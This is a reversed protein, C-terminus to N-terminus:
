DAGDAQAFIITYSGVAAGLDKGKEIDSRFHIGGYLRSIAAEEKYANFTSAGEPFLYSLVEAAASSFTSHGSVYAPFNPMGTLTKVDSDIQSPRPNYWYYKVNWTAVGADLMAANLYAFARAARVESYDADKVYEVAIDNWHGPPTYTGGGDAWRHV